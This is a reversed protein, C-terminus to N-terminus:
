RRGGVFVLALVFLGGALLVPTSTFDLKCTNSAVDLTYLGSCEPVNTPTGPAAVGAGSLTPDSQAATPTGCSPDGTLCAKLTSAVTSPSWKCLSETISDIWYPLWDPRAADYCYNGPYEGFGRNLGYPM